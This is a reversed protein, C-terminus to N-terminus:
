RAAACRAIFHRQEDNLPPNAACRARATEAEDFRDLANLAAARFWLARAEEARWPRGVGLNEPYTLARDFHALAEGAAGAELAKRGQEIEATSFLRWVTADGERFNVRTAELTSVTEAFRGTANLARALEITVDHRRRADAPLEELAEVAAAPRGSEILLRALDRYLTQDEPRAAIARRLSEEAATPQGGIKWQTMGLARHATSLDPDLAAAAEWAAIAEQYRGLGALLHGLLLRPAASAPLHEAAARLVPLSEPRSPFAYDLPAAIAEERHRRARDGDAWAAAHFLLVPGPELGGHERLGAFVDLAVEPFGVEALAGM